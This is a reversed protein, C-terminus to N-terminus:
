GTGEDNLELLPELILLIQEDDHLVTGAASKRTNQLFLASVLHTFLCSSEVNSFDYYRDLVKV